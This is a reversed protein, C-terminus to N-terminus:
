KETVEKIEDKMSPLYQNLAAFLLAQSQGNKKTGFRFAIKLACIYIFHVCRNADIWM